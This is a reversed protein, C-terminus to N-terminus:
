DNERVVHRETFDLRLDVRGLYKTRGEEALSALDDPDDIDSLTWGMQGIWVCGPQPRNRVIGDSDREPEGVHGDNGAWRALGQMLQNVSIHADDALRKLKAFVDSDLRLEVRTKAAAAVPKAVKKKAM